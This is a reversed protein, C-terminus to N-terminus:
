CREVKYGKKGYEVTVRVRGQGFDFVDSVSGRRNRRIHLMQDLRLYEKVISLDGLEKEGAFEALVEYRAAASPRARDYGRERFFEALEEFFKFASGWSNELYGLTHIFQGSNYYYELVDTIWRLKGLEAWTLWKTSLVEYPPRVSYRIDWEKARRHMETGALVKLFGLQLQDAHLAYVDDFSQGFREYGEFPLGAILDVHLNINEARRLREINGFLRPLDTVRRIAALTEANTSQIGIELQVLGQRLGELLALEEETLLDAGIEFHFNTVGNDHDKLYTWIAMTREHSANFTRDIFKVQPVRRDIFFQLEPLVKDLSRFRVKRDISSL